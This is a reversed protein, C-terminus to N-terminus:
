QAIETAEGNWFGGESKYEYASSIYLQKIQMWGGEPMFKKVSLIKISESSQKCVWFHYQNLEASCFTNECVNEYSSKVGMKHDGM